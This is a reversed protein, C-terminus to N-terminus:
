SWRKREYNMGTVFLMVLTFSIYYFLSAFSFAGYAFDNYRTLLSMWRFIDGIAGGVSAGISQLFWMCLLIVIGSVAAVIQNETLSSTFLGVALFSAGMVFFGIYGGVTMAMPIDGLISIIIPYIFSLVIMVSFVTLAALYKGVIIQPVTIPSTRLLVDTGNRKEDALLKMTIVPALFILFLSITSLTESFETSGIIINNIWFFLGTLVMFFGIVSYAIPSRFFAAVERKYITIM